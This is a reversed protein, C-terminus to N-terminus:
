PNSVDENRCPVFWHPASVPEPYACVPGPTQPHAEGTMHCGSPPLRIPSPLFIFISPHRSVGATGTRWRPLLREIILDGPFIPFGAQPCNKYKQAPFLGQLSFVTDTTLPFFIPQTGFILYLIRIVDHSVITLM